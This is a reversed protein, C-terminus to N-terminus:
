FLLPFLLHVAILGGIFFGAVAILSPLQLNALGSIAHGSTCGGAYRAGFGVLFGGLAIIIWGQWTTLAEWSIFGPVMPVEEPNVEVGAKELTQVTALSIHAENGENGALFNAAIFGGLATGVIFVLNWVQSRWDFKFFDSLRAAGGIACMTRLNGSVGFESGFWLLLFMSLAILGGTLYWPWPQSAWEATQSIAFLYM